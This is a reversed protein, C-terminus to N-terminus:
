HAEAPSDNESHALYMESVEIGGIARMMTAGAKRLIKVRQQWTTQRWTAWANRAEAVAKEVDSHDAQQFRGIIVRTDSPCSDVFVGGKGKREQGGIWLPYTEGLRGRLDNLAKEFGAHFDDGLTALSSYTITDM